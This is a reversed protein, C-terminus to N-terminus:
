TLTGKPQTLPIFSPRRVLSAAAVAGVGEVAKTFLALGDVAEVDPHLFPVGITVALGYSAILGILTAAATVFVVQSPKRTLTLAVASLLVTAAVFGIGAGTGERFHDEVVAGHIGASVACALIVIDIRLAAPTVPADGDATGIWDQSANGEKSQSPGNTGPLDTTKRGPAVNARLYGRLRPCTLIRASAVCIEKSSRSVRALPPVVIFDLSQRQPSGSV